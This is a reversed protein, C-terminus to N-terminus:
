ASKTYSATKTITPDLRYDVKVSLTGTEDSGVCLENTGPLIYTDQSTNGSLTYDFLQPAYTGSTGAASAAISLKTGPTYTGGAATITIGTGLEDTTFVRISYFPSPSVMEWMNYFYNWNLSTALYQDSFERLQERVNFFRVDALVGVISENEFKDVLVTQVEVDARDMNFAYALAQVSIHGNVSPTTIWVLNSPDSFSTAGAINNEPKPFSFDGVATKIAALLANATDQNTVADVTVAPLVQADYGADILGRMALYENWNAGTVASQVKASMMDRIGYESLFSQRLNDFTITVPFQLRVNVSHYASMIYSQYLAFANEYGDRPNFERAQCMNVFTEEHTSGYRMPNKKYRALPNRWSASDVTQLGIRDVLAPVLANRVQKMNMIDSYVQQLNDSTAAPIANQYELSMTKRVANLVNTNTAKAKTAM